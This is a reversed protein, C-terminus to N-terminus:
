ERFEIMDEFSRFSYVIKVIWTYFQGLIRKPQLEHSLFNVLLCVKFNKWNHESLVKKGAFYTEETKVGSSSAIPISM